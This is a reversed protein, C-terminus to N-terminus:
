HRKHQSIQKDIYIKLQPTVPWPFIDLELYSAKILPSGTALWTM